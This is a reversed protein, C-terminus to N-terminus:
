DQSNFGTWDSAEDDDDGEIAISRIGNRLLPTGKGKGLVRSNLLIKLPNGSKCCMVQIEEKLLKEKYALLEVKLRLGDKDHGLEIVRCNSNLNEVVVAPILTKGEEHICLNWPVSFEVHYRHHVQLFGLHVDLHGHRQPHIMINNDKGVGSGGGFHVHHEKEGM